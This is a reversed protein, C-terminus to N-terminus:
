KKVPIETDPDLNALVGRVSSAWKEIEDLANVLTKVKVTDTNPVPDAGGGGYPSPCGKQVKIGNGM